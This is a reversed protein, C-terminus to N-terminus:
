FPNSLSPTIPINVQSKWNYGQHRCLCGNSCLSCIHIPILIGVRTCWWGCESGEWFKIRPRWWLPKPACQFFQRSRLARTHITYCTTFNFKNKMCLIILDCFIKTHNCRIDKCHNKWTEVFDSLAPSVSTQGSSVLIVCHAFMPKPHIPKCFESCKSSLILTTKTKGSACKWAKCPSRPSRLVTTLHWRLNSQM